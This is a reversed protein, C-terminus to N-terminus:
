DYLESVDEHNKMWDIAWEFVEEKDTSVINEGITLSQGRITVFAEFGVPKGVIRSTSSRITMWTDTPKHKWRIERVHERDYIPDELKEGIRSRQKRKDYGSLPTRNWRKVLSPHWTVHGRDNTIDNHKKQSIEKLDGGNEVWQNHLQESTTM